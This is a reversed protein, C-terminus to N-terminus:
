GLRVWRPQHHRRDKDQDNIARTQAVQQEGECLRSIERMGGRRSLPDVSARVGACKAVRGELREERDEGQDGQLWLIAQGRWGGRLLM